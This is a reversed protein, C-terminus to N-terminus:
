RRRGGTTMIVISKLLSSPETGSSSKLLAEAEIVKKLAAVLATESPFNRAKATLGREFWNLGALGAIQPGAVGAATLRIVKIIKTLAGSIRNLLFLPEEGSELLKDILRTARAPDRDIIANALEFPNEEKSFGLSEVVHEPTIQAVKEDALYMLIKTLERELANLDTGVTEVIIHVAEPSIKAGNQEAYNQVWGCAQEPRLGAFATLAGAQACAAPLPDKSKRLDEDCIFVLTTSELPNALYEGIIKKGETKIKNARKVIILRRASFVPLTSAQSVIEGAPCADAETEFYNFDDPKVVDKLRRVAEQKRFLEEGSFYYVPRLTGKQLEALLKEPTLEPM